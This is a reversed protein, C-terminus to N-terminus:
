VWAKTVRAHPLQFWAKRQLEQWGCHRNARQSRKLLAQRWLGLVRWRVSRLAPVCLRLGFYQYFGEVMRGLHRQQERVREHLHEGLWSKAASLFRQRAKLSPRRGLNVRGGRTKSLYHSFGLFTFSEPREDRGGGQGPGGELRRLATKEPAVQLGYAALREAVEGLFREADEQRQFAAVFDDAYRTLEAAGRCSRKFRREFWQDLVYHLYINALVPSVPGGQPVGNETAIVVGEELVGAKLWKGLLRILGGDNARHRM